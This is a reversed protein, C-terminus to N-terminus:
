ATKKKTGKRKGQVIGNKRKQGDVGKQFFITKPKKQKEKKRKGNGKRINAQKKSVLKGLMGKKFRLNSENKAKEKDEETKTQPKMTYTEAKRNRHQNTKPM